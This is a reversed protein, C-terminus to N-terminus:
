ARNYTIRNKGSRKSNYMYHDAARLLEDKDSADQPFTAIGFSAKIAENIQEKRLFRTRAMGDKIKQVKSLAEDKDQSPLILIYEDGGYRVVRDEEDLYGNVCEAVEKLVKSGLLHGHADVTRKFNDLDFFVLSVPKGKKEAEALVRNLHRHLFRTNYFGTVDDTVSLRDITEFNTANALAVSVYDALIDLFPRYDERFLRIDEVDIAGLFGTVKERIKLPVFLASHQILQIIDRPLTQRARSSHIDEIVIPTLRNCVTEGLTEEM